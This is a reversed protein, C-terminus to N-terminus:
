MLPQVQRWMQQSARMFGRGWPDNWSLTRTTESDTDFGAAALAADLTGMERFAQVDVVGADCMRAVASLEAISAHNTAWDLGAEYGDAERADDNPRSSGLHERFREAMRHVREDAEKKAEVKRVEEELARQCAASVSLGAAKVRKALGESVYVNLKPM